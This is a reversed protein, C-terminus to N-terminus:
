KTENPHRATAKTIWVVRTADNIAYWVRGGGSVEYQWQELIDGNVTTARLNSHLRSHRVSNDSHRPNDTLRDYVTAMVGPIQACLNVWGEAVERSAYRLTWEHQQAPRIAQAGRKGTV